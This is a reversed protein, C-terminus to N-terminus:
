RRSAIAKAGTDLAREAAQDPALERHFVFDLLMALNVGTVLRVQAALNKASDATDALERARSGVLTGGRAAGALNRLAALPGKLSELSTVVAANGEVQTRTSLASAAATARIRDALQQEAAFAARSGAEATKVAANAERLAIDKEVLAGKLAKEGDKFEASARVNKDTEVRYRALADAAENRAVRLAAADTRSASEVDRQAKTAAALDDLEAGLRDLEPTSQGAAVGLDRLRAGLDRLGDDGATTVEIGLKVDRSSNTAM